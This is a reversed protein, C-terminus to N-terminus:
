SVGAVRGPGGAGRGWRAGGPDAPAGLLPPQGWLVRGPFVEVALLVRNREILKLRAGSGKGMTAGRHHRVIARPMYWCRWGAIRARLGLEADDGYAFFDEDFGGIEDLMQRRYVAVCGDPWLVEE